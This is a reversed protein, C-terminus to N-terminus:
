ALGLRRRAIWEVGTGVLLVLMVVWHDWIYERRPPSQQLEQQRKLDRVWTEAEHLGYVKGATHDALMQLVLPNASTDLTEDDIHYVNFRRHQEPPTMGPSSLSLTYAGVEAPEVTTRFRPDRSSTPSLAIERRGGHPDILELRPATGAPPALKYLVDVILPDGRRLSARSIQLSVQQGPLFDGGMTLWRVLNSWFTDYFGALDRNEETLLSWRWLGEGLVGVVSGRGYNM